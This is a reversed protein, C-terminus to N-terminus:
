YIKRADKNSTGSSIAEPRQKLAPLFSGEEAKYSIKSIENSPPSFFNDFVKPPTKGNALKHAFLSQEEVYWNRGVLQAKVKGLRCLQGIYDNTYGTIEAARRSSIFKKGQLILSEAM